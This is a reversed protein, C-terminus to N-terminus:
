RFERKHTQVTFFIRFFELMFAIRFLWEFLLENSSFQGLYTLFGFSFIWVVLRFPFQVYYSIVAARSPKYIASASVFLLLYTFATFAIKLVPLAGSPISDLDNAMRYVQPTLLFISIIDLLAFIRLINM